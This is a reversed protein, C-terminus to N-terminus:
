LSGDLRGLPFFQNSSWLGLWQEGAIETETGLSVLEYYVPRTIRAEIGDRVHLYPITEATGNSAACRLPHEADITIIEDVNTRISIIQDRGRGAAYLEVGVFPADTVQVPCIERPTVLWFGGSADRTLASAFLCVLEKRRIPSGQYYWTGDGDIRMAVDSLVTRNATGDGATETLEQTLSEAGEAGTVGSQTSGQESLTTVM